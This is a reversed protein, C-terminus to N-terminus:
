WCYKHAIKDVSHNAIEYTAGYDLIRRKWYSFRGQTSWLKKRQLFKPTFELWVRRKEIITSNLSARNLQLKDRLDFRSCEYFHWLDIKRNDNTM